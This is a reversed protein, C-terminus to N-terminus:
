LSDLIKRRKGEYEEATIVGQDYLKKLEGLTAAKDKSLEGGIVGYGGYGMVGRNYQIDFAQDSMLLLGITEFFAILGPIFTWCFLLYLIGAVNQGLYFKHIGIYGLFFALLAATIRNKM